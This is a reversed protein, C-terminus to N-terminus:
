FSNFCNWDAAAWELVEIFRATLSLRSTILHMSNAELLVRLM